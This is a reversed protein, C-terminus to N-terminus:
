VRGSCRHVAGRAARRPRKSRPKRPAWSRRGARWPTPPASGPPNPITPRVSRISAGPPVMGSWEPGVFIFGDSNQLQTKIPNWSKQWAETNQWIGEDWLPLPNGSLDLLWSSSDPIKALTQVIFNAIKLSQSQSRPSSSVITYKM